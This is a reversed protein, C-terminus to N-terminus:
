ELIKNIKEDRWKQILDPIESFPIGFGDAEFGIIRLSDEVELKGPTKNDGTLYNFYLGKSTIFDMEVCIKNGKRSDTITDTDLIKILNGLYEMPVNNIIYWLKIHFDKRIYGKVKNYIDGKTM